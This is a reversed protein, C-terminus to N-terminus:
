EPGTSCMWWDTSIVGEGTGTTPYPYYGVALQAHQCAGAEFRGVAVLMTYEPDVIEMPFQGYYNGPDSSPAVVLGRNALFGPDGQWKMGVFTIPSCKVKFHVLIYGEGTLVTPDSCLVVQGEGPVCEVDDCTEVVSSPAWASDVCSVDTPLVEEHDGTEGDCDHLDQTDYLVEYSVDIDTGACASDFGRDNVQEFGSVPSCGFGASFLGLLWFHLEVSRFLSRRIHGPEVLTSM